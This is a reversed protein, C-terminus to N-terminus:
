TRGFRRHFEVLTCPMMDSLIAIIIAVQMHIKFRLWGTRQNDSSDRSVNIIIIIIIRVNPETYGSSTVLTTLYVVPLHFVCLRCHSELFDARQRKM